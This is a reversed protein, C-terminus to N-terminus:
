EDTVHPITIIGGTEQSTILLLHTVIDYYISGCLLANLLNDIINNNYSFDRYQMSELLGPWLTKSIIKMEEGQIAMKENLIYYIVFIIVIASM